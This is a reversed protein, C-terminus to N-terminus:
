THVRNRASARIMVSRESIAEEIKPNVAPIRRVYFRAVHKERDAAINSLM